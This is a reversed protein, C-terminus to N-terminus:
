TFVSNVGPKMGSYHGNIHYTQAGAQSTYTIVGLNGKFGALINNRMIHISKPTHAYSTFLGGSTGVSINYFRSDDITVSARTTDEVRITNGQFTILNDKFYCNEININFHYDYFM